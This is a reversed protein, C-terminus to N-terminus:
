INRCHRTSRVLSNLLLCLEPVLPSNPVRLCALVSVRMNTGDHRSLKSRAPGRLKQLRTQFRTSKPGNTQYIGNENKTKPQYSTGRTNRVQKDMTRGFSCAVSKISKTPRPFGCVKGKQKAVFLLLRSEFSANIVREEALGRTSM